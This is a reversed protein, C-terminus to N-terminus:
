CKTNEGAAQDLGCSPDLVTEDGNIEALFAVLEAAPAPTFFQCNGASKYSLEWVQERTLTAKGDLALKLIERDSLRQNRLDTLDPVRDLREM